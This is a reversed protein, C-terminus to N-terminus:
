PTLTGRMGWPCCAFPLAFCPGPTPAPCPAACRATGEEARGVVVMGVVVMGVGVTVGAVTAGAVLVRVEQVALGKAWGVVLPATEM